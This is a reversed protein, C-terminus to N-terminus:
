KRVFFFWWTVFVGLSWLFSAILYIESGLSNSHHCTVGSLSAVCSPNTFLQLRLQLCGILFFLVLFVLIVPRLIICFGSDSAICSSSTTLPLLWFYAALLGWPAAALTLFSITSLKMNTYRVPISRISDTM